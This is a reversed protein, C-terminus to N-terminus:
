EDERCDERRQRNRYRVHDVCGIERIVYVIVGLYCCGIFLAAIQFRDM